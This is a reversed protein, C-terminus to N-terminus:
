SGSARVKTPFLQAPLAFTTTNPGANMSLNFVIFGLFIMGLRHSDTAALHSAFALILMGAIMGLFGWLQLRIPGLRHILWIGLLFGILLFIDVVGSGKDTLLKHPIINLPDTNPSSVILSSLIIPTFLRVGYTAIDM